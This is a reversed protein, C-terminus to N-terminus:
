AARLGHAGGARNDVAGFPPSTVRGHALIPSVREANRTDGAGSGSLPFIILFTTAASSSDQAATSTAAGTMTNSANTARACDHGVRGIRTITGNAAPLAVSMTGRVTNSCTDACTPWDITM